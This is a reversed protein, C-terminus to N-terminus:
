ATSLVIMTQTKDVGDINRLKKTVFDNLEHVDKARVKAIIDTGGAVISAEEAGISKIERAVDEQVVRTGMPTRYVVSILVYAVVGKGLKDHDLVVTYGKIIGLLELKKIRNHVTTIPIVLRKAIQSTTYKSNEKLLDLIAWDNSDLKM